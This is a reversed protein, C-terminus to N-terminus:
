CGMRRRLRMWLDRVRQEDAEDAATPPFLYASRMLLDLRRFKEAPTLARVEEITRRNVTEWRAMWARVEDANM